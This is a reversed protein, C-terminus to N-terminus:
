GSRRTKFRLLFQLGRRRFRDLDLFEGLGKSLPEGGQTLTCEYRAYFPAVEVLRTPECRLPTGGISVEFWSPMQLGWGVARLPGDTAEVVLPADDALADGKKSDVILAQSEGGVERMDYLVLTRDGEHFRAWSWRSFAAELRGEGRNIDHYGTGEFSFDPRKMEVRVRAHPMPVHWHHAQGESSSLHFPGLPGGLPELDFHGEIRGGIKMLSLLFPASRERIHVRLAGSPLREIHSDAIAPGDSGASKLAPEGYESMVWAVQKGRDYLALNVAVHEEPRAQEGRRLRAAYDPSFVSGIFFIATLAREGDQSRADFYWWAYGGPPIPGDLAESRPDLAKTTGHGGMAVFLLGTVL